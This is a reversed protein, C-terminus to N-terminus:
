ENAAEFFSNASYDNASSTQCDRLFKLRPISVFVYRGNPLKVDFPEESALEEATLPRGLAREIRLVVLTDRVYSLM